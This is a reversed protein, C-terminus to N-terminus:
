VDEKLLRGHPRARLGGDTPGALCAHGVRVCCWLLSIQENGMWRADSETPLLKPGFCSAPCGCVFIQPTNWLHHIGILPPFVSILSALELLSLTICIPSLLSHAARAPEVGEPDEPPDRLQLLKIPRSGPALEGATKRM